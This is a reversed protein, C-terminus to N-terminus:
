IQRVLICAITKAVDETADMIDELMDYMKEHRMTEISLKEPNEYLIEIGDHNIKDADSELNDITQCIVYIEKWHKNYNSLLTIANKIQESSRLILESLKKYDQLFAISHSYLEMRKSTSKIFDIVDDMRNMLDFIQDGDFPMQWTQEQQVHTSIEKTLTDALKEISAIQQGYSVDETTINKDTLKSAIFNDFLVAVDYIHNAQELLTKSYYPNVGPFLKKIIHNLNM